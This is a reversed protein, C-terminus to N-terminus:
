RPSGYADIYERNKFDMRVEFTKGAPLGGRQKNIKIFALEDTVDFAKVQNLQTGSYVPQGSPYDNKPMWLSIVKDARQAIASSGQSDYMGPILYPSRAGELKQKAQSGVVFPTVLKKAMARLKYADAKITLREKNEYDTGGAEPDLPHAQIYDDVVLGIKRPETIKGEQMGELVRAINTMTLDKGDMDNEYSDAIRWIKSDGIKSMAIRLKALDKFEGRALKAPLVDLLRGYETFAMAEVSEEHSIHVIDREQGKETFFKATERELWDMFFTKGNFTQAQIVILEWPLFPAVYDGISSGRIKLPVGFDEFEIARQVAEYGAMGVEHPTFIISSM